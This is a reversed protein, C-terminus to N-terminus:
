SSHAFMWILCLATSPLQPALTPFSSQNAIPFATAIDIQDPPHQLSVPWCCSLCYYAFTPACARPHLRPRPTTIVRRRRCAPFLSIDTTSACWVSKARAQGSQPQVHTPKRHNLSCHLGRTSFFVGSSFLPLCPLCRYLPNPSINIRSFNM